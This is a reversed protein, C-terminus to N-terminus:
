VRSVVFDGRPDYGHEVLLVGLNDRLGLQQEVHCAAACGASIPSSGIGLQSTCGRTSLKGLNCACTCCIVRLNSRIM